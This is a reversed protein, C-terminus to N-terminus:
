VLPDDDASRWGASHNGIVVKGAADVSVKLVVQASSREALDVPIREIM